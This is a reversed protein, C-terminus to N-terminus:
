LIKQKSRISIIDIEPLNFPKLGCSFQSNLRWYRVKVELSDVKFEDPLRLPHYNRKGIELMFGCGNRMVEETNRVVGSAEMPRKGEIFNVSGNRVPHANAFEKDYEVYGPKFIAQSFQTALDDDKSCGPLLFAFPFFILLGRRRM